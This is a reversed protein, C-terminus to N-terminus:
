KQIWVFQPKNQYPWRFGSSSSKDDDGSQNPSKVYLIMSEHNGKTNSGDGTTTTSTPAPLSRSSITGGKTFIEELLAEIKKASNTKGPTNQAEDTGNDVAVTNSQNNHNDNDDDNENDDVHIGGLFYAAARDRLRRRDSKRLPVDVAKSTNTTQETPHQAKGGKGSKGKTNGRKNNGAKGGGQSSGGTSVIDVCSGEKHFM